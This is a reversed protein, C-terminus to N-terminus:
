NGAAAQPQAQAVTMIAPNGAPSPGHVPVTKGKEQMDQCGFFVTHAFDDFSKESLNLRSINTSNEKSKGEPVSIADVQPFYQKIWRSFRSSPFPVEEKHAQLVYQEEELFLYTPPTFAKSMDTIRENEEVLYDIYTSVLFKTRQLGPPPLNKFVPNNPNSLSNEPVQREGHSNMDGTCGLGPQARSMLMPSDSDSSFDSSHSFASHWSNSQFDRSHFRAGEASFDGIQRHRSKPTFTSTLPSMEDDAHLSCDPTKQGIHFCSASRRPHVKYEGRCTYETYSSNFSRPHRNASPLNNHGMHCSRCAPMNVPSGSCICAPFTYPAPRYHRPPGYPKTSCIPTGHRQASWYQHPANMPTLAPRSHFNGNNPTINQNMGYVNEKTAEYGGLDSNHLMVEPLQKQFGATSNGNTNKMFDGPHFISSACNDLREPINPGHPARPQSVFSAENKRYVHDNTCNPQAVPQSTYQHGAPNQMPLMTSSVQPQGIQLQGGINQQTHVAQGHTMLHQYNFANGQEIFQPRPTGPYGVCPNAQSVFGSKAMLHQESACYNMTDSIHVPIGETSIYTSPLQSTPNMQWPGQPSMTPVIGSGPPVQQMETYAESNSSTYEAASSLPQDSSSTQPVEPAQFAQYCQEPITPHTTAKFEEKSETLSNVYTSQSVPVFAEVIISPQLQPTTANQEGVSLNEQSNKNAYQIVHAYEVSHINAQLDSGTQADLSTEHAQHNSAVSLCTTVPINEANQEGVSGSESDRAFNQLDPNGEAQQASNASSQDESPSMTTGDTETNCSIQVPCSAEGIVQSDQAQVSVCNEDAVQTVSDKNEHPSGCRYTDESGAQVIIVTQCVPEVFLVNGSASVASELTESQTNEQLGLISPSVVQHNQELDRSSQNENETQSHDKGSGNDVNTDTVEVPCINQSKFIVEDCKNSDSNNHKDSTVQEAQCSYLDSGELVSAKESELARNRNTNVEIPLETQCLYSTENSLMRRKWHQEALIDSATRKMAM